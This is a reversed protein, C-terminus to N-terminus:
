AVDRLADRVTQPLRSVVHGHSSAWAKCARLDDLTWTSYDGEKRGTHKSNFAPQEEQIALAEAIFAARRDPLEESEVRAALTHWWTMREHFRLRAPLDSTAGIYILRERADYIRYLVATGGEVELTETM